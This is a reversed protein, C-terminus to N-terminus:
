ALNREAPALILDAPNARSALRSKLKTELSKLATLPKKRL